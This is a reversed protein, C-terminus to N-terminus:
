KIFLSRSSDNQICNCIDLLKRIREMEQDIDKIKDAHITPKVSINVSDLRLTKLAAKMNAESTERVTLEITQNAATVFQQQGYFIKGKEEGVAIVFADKGRPLWVTGDETYFGYEKNNELLGGEAFVKYAPIVLYMNITQSYNSKMKVSLKSEVAGMGENLLNDINYWGYATVSIQYYEARSNPVSVKSATGTDKSIGGGAPPRIDAIVKDGNGETLSDRKAELQMYYRQYYLLSDNASTKKAGPLEKMGLRITERDIYALLGEIEEHTFRYAPMVTKHYECFLCNSYPDGESLVEAPNNIFRFLLKRDQWRNEVNALAPGRLKKDKDHCSRCNQNFLKEGSQTAEDPHTVLSKPDEWKIESGDKIGKYLQMATDAYQTPIKIHLPKLIASTEKTNIYFMGNSSLIGDKTQTTLGAQVMDSISLAEKILLTVTLTSAQIANAPITVEIGEATTVTTDKNTSINFSQVALNETTLINSKKANCASLLLILWIYRKM